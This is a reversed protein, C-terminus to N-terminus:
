TVEGGTEFLPRLSEFLKRYRQYAEAYAAENGKDPEV